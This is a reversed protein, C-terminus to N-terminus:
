TLEKLANILPYAQKSKFRKWYQPHSFALFPLNYVALQREAVKGLAFVHKPKLYSYLAGLDVSTGDNDLANVWFLKREDIDAECLLKNLWGSCAKTSCFPAHLKNKEPHSTREGVIFASIGPIYNGAGIPANTRRGLGWRTLVRMRVDEAGVLHIRGDRAEVLDFQNTEAILTQLTTDPVHPKCSAKPVSVEYSGRFSAWIGVYSEGDERVNQIVTCEPIDDVDWILEVDM